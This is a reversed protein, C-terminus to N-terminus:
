TRQLAINGGIPINRSALWEAMFGTIVIPVQKLDDLSKAGVLFMTTRLEREFRDIVRKVDSDAAKLFPLAMGVADAGLALLKAADLGNRVGGSAIVFLDGASVVEVASIPTPIGWNWFLRGIEGSSEDGREDARLSEVGAWSTGGLGGCDIGQVGTEKIRLADERSIGSGVEKVIIPRDCNNVLEKLRLLIGKFKTDGETQIAEQLPNTHIALADANIMEIAQNAQQIGWGEEGLQGAGLNGLVITTPAM